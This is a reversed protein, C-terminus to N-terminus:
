EETSDAEGKKELNVEDKLDVGLKKMWEDSGATAFYQNFDNDFKSRVDLPLAYFSKEADIRLQLAEAYTKPMETFDGFMPKRANIVDTNGATLQAIIYAMDTTDKQANIYANIDTKGSEVLEITGDKMVKPSYEIHETEGEYTVFEAPDSVRAFKNRM